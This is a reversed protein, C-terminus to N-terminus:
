EDAEEAEGRQRRRPRGQERRAVPGEAAGGGEGGGEGDVQGGEGERGGEEEQGREVKRGGGGGGVGLSRELRRELEEEEGRGEYVRRVVGAAGREGVEVRGRPGVVFSVTEEDGAQRERVRLVYGEKEM